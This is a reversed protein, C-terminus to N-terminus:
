ERASCHGTKDLFSVVFSREDNYVSVFLYYFVNRLWKSGKNKLILVQASLLKIAESLRMHTNSIKMLIYIKEM